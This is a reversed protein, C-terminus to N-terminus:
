VNCSTSFHWLFNGASNCGPKESGNHKLSGNSFSLNRPKNSELRELGTSMGVEFSMRSGSNLDNTTINFLNKGQHWLGNSALGPNQNGNMVPSQALWDPLPPPTGMQNPTQIGISPLICSMISCIGSLKTAATVILKLTKSSVPFAKIAFVTM